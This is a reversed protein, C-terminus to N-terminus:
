RKEGAAPLSRKQRIPCSNLAVCWGAMQLLFGTPWNYGDPTSNDTPQCNALAAMRVGANPVSLSVAICRPFHLLPQQNCGDILLKREECDSMM